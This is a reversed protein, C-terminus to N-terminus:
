TVWLDAACLGHMCARPPALRPTALCATCPPPLRTGCCSHLPRRPAPRGTNTPDEALRASAQTCAAGPVWHVLVLSSGQRHRRGRAGTGIIQQLTCTGVHWMACHLSLAGPQSCRDAARGVCTLPRRSCMPGRRTVHMDTCPTHIHLANVKLSRIGHSKVYDAIARAAARPRLVGKSASPASTSPPSHALPAAAAPADTTAPKASKSVIKIGGFATAVAPKPAAAPAPAAPKAPAPAPKGAASGDEKTALVLQELLEGVAAVEAASTM